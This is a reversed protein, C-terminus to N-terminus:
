PTGWKTKLYTDAQQREAADLIRNYVVIEGINLNASNAAPGGYGIHYSGSSTFGVTNTATSFLAAGNVTAVYSGPATRLNYMHGLKLDPAPDGLTKRATTGWAEYVQNDMFPYHQSDANAGWGGLWGTGDGESRLQIV